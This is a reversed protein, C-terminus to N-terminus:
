SVGLTLATDTYKIGFIYNETVSWYFIGFSTNAANNQKKKKRDQAAWCKFGM